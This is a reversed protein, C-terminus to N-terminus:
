ILKALMGIWAACYMELLCKDAALVALEAESAACVLCVARLTHLTLRHNM